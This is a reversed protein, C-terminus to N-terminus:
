RDHTKGTEPDYMYYPDDITSSKGMFEFSGNIDCSVDALTFLRMNKQRALKKTEEITMLRPYKSTWFIGNLIFSAYPAIKEAFVSTYEEPHNYYRDEDFRGQSDVCYDRAGVQCIYVKHNDFDKSKALAELDEPKVWEHPLCKFIHLAGKAVNGNGVLVFILPGLTKPLGEDAIVMGTRTVDLRADAVCRYMYSMGCALFPNGHGLALLRRGLAHLGDVMGGYGAFRSFQVLRVGNDNTLLEYDLLRIKKDLVAQLMGMNYSQGKHTHSFYMYTKSAILDDVPVEKVGVIIDACSLDNQVIAGVQAYKEDPVVRKTSPQLYVTAGLEKVLREVQDPVLPVRREWRGKSEKRIGISLIATSYKRLKLGFRLM